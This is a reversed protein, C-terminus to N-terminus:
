ISLRYNGTTFNLVYTFLLIICFTPAFTDSDSGKAQLFRVIPSKLERKRSALGVGCWWRSKM